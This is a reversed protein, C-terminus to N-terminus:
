VFCRTKPHFLTHQDLPSLLRSPPNFRTINDNVNQVGNSPAISPM